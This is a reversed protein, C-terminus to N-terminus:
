RVGSHRGSGNDIVNIADVRLIKEKVKRTISNVWLICQLCLGLIGSIKMSGYFIIIWAVSLTILNKLDMLLIGFSVFTIIVCLNRYFRLGM